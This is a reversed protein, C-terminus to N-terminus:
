NKHNKLQLYKNKYKLYKVQYNAGQYNAGQYNAGQYNAGQYNAGQYNAGQYNAGQYNAGENLINGRMTLEYYYLIKNFANLLDERFTAVNGQKSPSIYLNSLQEQLKINDLLRHAFEDIKNESIKRETVYIRKEELTMIHEFTFKIIPEHIINIPIPYTYDSYKYTKLEVNFMPYKNALYNSYAEYLNNKYFKPEHHDYYLIKIPFSPALEYMKDFIDNNNINIEKADNDINFYKNLNTENLPNGSDDVLVGNEFFHIYGYHETHEFIFKGGPKLTNIILEMYDDKPLFYSTMMDVYYNDVFKGNRTFVERIEEMNNSFLTYMDYQKDYVEISYDKEKKDGKLDMIDIFLSFSSNIFRNYDSDNLNNAGILINLPRSLTPCHNKILNVFNSLSSLDRIYYKYFEDRTLNNFPNNAKKEM